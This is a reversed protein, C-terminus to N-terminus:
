FDTCTHSTPRFKCETLDTAIAWRVEERYYMYEQKLDIVRCESKFAQELELSYNGFM